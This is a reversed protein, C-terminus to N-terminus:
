PAAESQAPEAGFGSRAFRLAIRITPQSSRAAGTEISRPPHDDSMRLSSLRESFSSHHARLGRARDTKQPASASPLSLPSSSASSLRLHHRVSAARRSPGAHRAARTYSASAEPQGCSSHELRKAHLCRIRKFLMPAQGCTTFLETSLKTFLKMSGGYLSSATTELSLHLLINVFEFDRRCYCISPLKAPQIRRRRRFDAALPGPRFTPPQHPCTPAKSFAAKQFRVLAYAKPAADM